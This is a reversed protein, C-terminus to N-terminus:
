TPFTGLTFLMQKQKGKGRGKGQGQGKKAAVGLGEGAEGEVPDSSGAGEDLGPTVVPTATGSGPASSVPGVSSGSAGNAGWKSAPAEKTSGLINRLSVNGKVQVKERKNASTPLVPFAATNLKPAPTNSSSSISSAPVSFPRLPTHSSSSSSASSSPLGPFATSSTNTTGSGAWPTKRSGPPAKSLGTSSGGGGLPPFKDRQAAAQANVAALSGPVARGSPGAANGGSGSNAAQAVRDWVRTTSSRSANSSTHTSQKANLVRGSTIAAYAGSSSSAASTVLDPFQRRQEIEFGKWERLLELSKKDKEAVGEKEEDEELLDVFSNIVRATPELGETSSRGSGKDKSVDLVNWVIGILDRATSEGARYGRAAAKVAAMASSPNPALNSLLTLFATHRDAVAPDVSADGPAPSVRRSSGSQANANGTVPRSATTAAGETDGNTLAGGFAQRRRTQNQPPAPPPLLPPQERSLPERNSRGSNTNSTIDRVGAFEIGVVKRSAGHEEVMHAQLDLASGFVVFKRQMCVSHSCAFHASSFHYELDPYSAFYQDRVGDRKCIFCEEHRERMHSYLDDDGAFCERCFECLPHIGGEPQNTTNNISRKGSRQKGGYDMSPLHVRLQQYTYLVHEHAFVKKSRICLDCMLRGHSARVHMKLDGWGKAIYDCESDPCNFRLLILSETMMEQTEFTVRLKPDYLKPNSGETSSSLDNAYESFPKDASTTFIVEPQPEKCFTCVDKKYLARLRLACVHCTRHNCASLSYYKVPEACIWCVDGEIEADDAAIVSSPAEISTDTKSKGEQPEHDHRSDKKEGADTTRGSRGGRGRGKNGQARGGRGGRNLNRSSVQQLLQRSSSITTSTTSM